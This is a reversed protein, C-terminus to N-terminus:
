PKSPKSSHKSVIRKVTSSNRVTTKAGLTKELLSGSFKSETLTKARCFWYVESGHFHFEDIQDALSLLKQQVQDSPLA